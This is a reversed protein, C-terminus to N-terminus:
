FCMKCKYTNKDKKKYDWIHMHWVVESQLRILQLGKCKEGFLEIKELKEIQIREITEKM